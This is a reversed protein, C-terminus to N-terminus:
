GHVHAASSLAAVYHAIPGRLFNTYSCTTELQLHGPVALKNM